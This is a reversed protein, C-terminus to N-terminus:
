DRYTPLTIFFTTGKGQCSEVRITGGHHEVIRKCITLGMGSGKQQNSRVIRVLPMFVKEVNKQDFGLGNDVVSIM